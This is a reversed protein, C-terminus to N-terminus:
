IINKTNEIIGKIQNIAEQRDTGKYYTNENSDSVVYRGLCYSLCYTKNNVDFTVYDVFVSPHETINPEQWRIIVDLKLDNIIEGIVTPM